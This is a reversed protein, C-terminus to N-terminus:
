TSSLSTWTGINSAGSVYFNCTAPDTKSIPSERGLYTESIGLRYSTHERPAVIPRKTSKRVKLSGSSLSGNVDSLIMMWAPVLLKKFPAVTYSTVLWYLTSKCDTFHKKGWAMTSHEAMIGRGHSPWNDLNKTWDQLSTIQMKAALSSTIKM